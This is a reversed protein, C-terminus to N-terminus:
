IATNLRPIIPHGTTTHIKTREYEETDNYYLIIHEAGYRVSNAMISPLDRCITFRPYALSSLTVKESQYIEGIKPDPNQDWITNNYDDNRELWAKVGNRAICDDKVVIIYDSHKLKSKYGRGSVDQFLLELSTDVTNLIETSVPTTSQITVSRPTLANYPTYVTSSGSNSGCAWIFVALLLIFVTKMGKHYM